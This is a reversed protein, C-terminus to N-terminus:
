IGDGKAEKLLSFASKLDLLLPMLALFLLTIRLILYDRALYLATALLAALFFSLLSGRPSIVLIGCSRALLFPATVCAATYALLTSLSLLPYSLNKGFYCVAAACLAGLVSAASCFGGREKHTLATIPMTFLFYPIASIAIPYAALSASFYEEPALFSIIEPSHM